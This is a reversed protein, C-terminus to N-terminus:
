GAAFARNLAALDEPTNVNRFSLLQPDVAEVQRQTITIHPLAQLAQTIRREGSAFRERLAGLAAVSLASPFPQVQGGVEALVAFANETAADILLRLVESQILPADCSCLVAWGSSMRQLGSLLGQLPGQGPVTDRVFQVPVCPPDLRPEPQDEALVILVRSCVPECACVVRELFTQGDFM